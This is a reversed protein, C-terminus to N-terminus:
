GKGAVVDADDEEVDLPAEDDVEVDEEATLGV